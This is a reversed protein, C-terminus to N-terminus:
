TTANDKRREITWEVDDVWCASADFGVQMTECSESIQEVIQDAEESDAYVGEFEFIVIVRV